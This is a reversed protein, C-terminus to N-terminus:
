EEYRKFVLCANQGGFGFANSLVVRVDKRRAENPVYDLDCSPDPYQYNITPHIIGDTISRICPVAELAGAAGLSHGIMSKTSSIPVQYARDGFLGKVAMTEVMDNLPTSTGHANIYDVEDLGVGADQLAWRMAYITSQGSEDPHVPHSADCSCGFGALECLVTAGRDLAHELSELVLVVAGEAPVFGDRQADFPRSATPPDDNRNTSLAKMVCFGGLGLQSIGAETGGTLMVDAAGRRIAELAEGMAQNSAACATIVTSNYGKAGVTRGVNAAAMNPLIMPFFFPSMRMGGKEVLVRCGEETTPFGGNGNGLIVGVRHPDQSSMDLGADEVAMLAAAIGLQSFRAMRRAEKSSMYQVPDFDSVEAAVQCPFDTPDCLTMPGVGSVGAVLNSWFEQASLGLPTVAGM